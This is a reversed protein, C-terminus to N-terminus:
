LKTLDRTLYVVQMARASPWSIRESTPKPNKQKTKPTHSLPGALAPGALGAAVGRLVNQPCKSAHGSAITSHGYAATPQSLTTLFFSFVSCM